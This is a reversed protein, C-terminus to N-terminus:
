FRCMLYTLIQVDSMSSDACLVCSFCQVKKKYMSTFWHVFKGILTRFVITIYMPLDWSTGVVLLIGVVLVLVVLTIQLWKPDLRQCAWRVWKLDLRQWAWPKWWQVNTSKSIAAVAITWWEIGPDRRFLNGITIWTNRKSRRMISIAQRTPHYIKLKTNTMAIWMTFPFFTNGSSICVGHGVCYWYCYM